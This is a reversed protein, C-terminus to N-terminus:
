RIPCPRFNRTPEDLLMVDPLQLSLRLLLLKAKQGGSLEGIPHVNGRQYIEPKGSIHLGTGEARQRGGFGPFGGSHKERGADGSLEAAYVGSYSNREGGAPGPDKKLLTQREEEMKQRYHLSEGTGTDAAPSKEALKRDPVELVPLQLDLVEKERRFLQRGKPIESLYKGGTGSIRDNGTEGAGASTGHSKVTHM